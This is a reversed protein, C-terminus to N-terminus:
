ATPPLLRLLRIIDYVAAHLAFAYENRAIGRLTTKRIRGVTKMWGFGQEVLKRKRQSVKYSEHRLTRKDLVKTRDIAAVHPTVDRERLNRVFEHVCFGKDAGLTADHIEQRDLMSLAAAREACGNAHTVETDIILGNRNEMLSHGMFSLKSEKGSGKRYLRSEPDTTSQHTDNSRQEGKFDVDPNRDSKDNKPKEGDKPQFSKFSAWAEILTGDVTFHEGSVLHHERAMTVVAALFERGVEHEILRERNKSFTSRDFPEEEMNMGLFWRFLLNYGLMECFLEDSRVSYLAILIQSKLLREPAISPRGTDSYMTDFVADLRRLAEDCFQRIRRIPHNEPILSEVSFYHFLATQNKEEGRMCASECM